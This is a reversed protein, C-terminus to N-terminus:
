CWSHANAKASAGAKPKSEEAAAGKDRRWRGIHIFGNKRFNSPARPITKCAQACHEKLKIMSKVVAPGNPKGNWFSVEFREENNLIFQAPGMDKFVVLSTVAAYSVVKQILPTEKHFGLDNFISKVRNEYQPVTEGSKVPVNYLTIIQPYFANDMLIANYKQLTAIQQEMQIMKQQLAQWEEVSCVMPDEPVPPLPPLPPFEPAVVVADDAPKGGEETTTNDFEIGLQTQMEQVSATGDADAADASAGGDVAEETGTEPDRRRRKRSSGNERKATKRQMITSACANIMDKSLCIVDDATLSDKKYYQTHWMHDQAVQAATAPGGPAPVGYYNASLDPHVRIGSAIAKVEEFSSVLKVKQTGFEHDIWTECVIFGVFDGSPKRMAYSM